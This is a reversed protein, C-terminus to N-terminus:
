MRTMPRLGLLAMGAALTHRAALFLALRAEAVEQPASKIPLVKFAANTASCLRFLYAVLVCAELEHYAEVLVEDFRAIETVLALAQPEVLPATSVRPRPAVGCHQELSLLRCHTYQLKVGTDGSAQLAKGWSFEYDRQRRQKLDGVIVSSVALEEASAQSSVRTTKSTQQKESMLHRAGDLLDELAVATGKRSSMGRVRGFKVHSLGDEAWRHGLARLISFLATFHDSQGNEVVYIMRTFAYRNFRDLAAAVDRTIYLTSGDSKEITVDQNPNVPYVKRGDSLTRLLGANEMAQLVERCAEQPYMSEGHYEDFSVNLRGYVRKLDILSLERYTEWASLDAPEGEEMRTFTERATQAVKPDEAARQNAYVYAQHLKTIADEQLDAVTLGQTDCGYKLLGFQTGWDGLFNLRTVSHGVASCINGVFNGIITSRLHGVHFPKAINPSSYEVVVRQPPLLSVLGSTRWFDKPRDTITDVVDSVLQSPSVKFNLRVDAKTQKLYVAPVLTDTEFTEVLSSGFTALGKLRDASNTLGRQQLDRLSLKFEPAQSAQPDVQIYPLVTSPKAERTGSLVGELARSVKSSILSRIKHAM